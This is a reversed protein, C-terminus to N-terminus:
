DLRGSRAACAARRAGVLARVLRSPVFLRFLHAVSEGFPLLPRRIDAAAISKMQGTSERASRVSPQGGRRCRGSFSQYNCSAAGSRMSAVSFMLLWFIPQRLVNHFVAFVAIALLAVALLPARNRVGIWMTLTILAILALSAPIGAQAALDIFTNHAETGQFAHGLGSHAGPGWGFLPSQLVADMGNEWLRIRTGAQGGENARDEVASEALRAISGSVPVLLAGLIAPIIVGSMLISRVTRRNGVIGKIWWVFLLIALGLSWAVFLADSQAALGSVLVGSIGITWFRRRMPRNTQTRFHWAVFPLPALLAAFQNPNESWGSLRIGMYWFASSGFVIRTVIATAFIAAVATLGAAAFARLYREIQGSASSELLFWSVLIGIFAWAITEHLTDYTSTMGSALARLFGTLLAASLCLLFLGGWRLAFAIPWHFGTLVWRGAVGCILWGILLLEGIGAPLGPLRIKTATSAVTAFALLLPLLLSPESSHGAEAQVFRTM